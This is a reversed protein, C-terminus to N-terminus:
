RDFHNFDRPEFAGVSPMRKYHDIIEKDKSPDQWCRDLDYLLKLVAMRGDMEHSDWAACDFEREGHGTMVNLQDVMYTQQFLNRMRAACKRIENAAQKRERRWDREVMHDTFLSDFYEMIQQTSTASIELATLLFNLRTEERDLKRKKWEEFIALVQERTKFENCAYQAAHAPLNTKRCFGDPNYGCEACLHQINTTNAM